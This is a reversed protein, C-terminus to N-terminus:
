ICCMNRLQIRAKILFPSMTPIVQIPDTFEFPLHELLTSKKFQSSQKMIIVSHGQSQSLCVPTNLPLLAYYRCSAAEWHNQLVSIFTISFICYFILLQPIQTLVICCNKTSNELKEIFSFNNWLLNKLMESSMYIRIIFLINPISDNILNIVSPLSEPRINFLPGAVKYKTLINIEFLKGKSLVYHIHLLHCSNNENQDM